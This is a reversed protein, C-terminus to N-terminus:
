GNEKWVDLYWCKTGVSLLLSQLAGGRGGMTGFHLLFIRSGAELMKHQLMVAFWLRSQILAAKNFEEGFVSSVQVLSYIM